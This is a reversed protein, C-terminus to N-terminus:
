SETRRTQESGRGSNRGSEAPEGSTGRNFRGREERADEPRPAPHAHKKTERPERPPTRTM